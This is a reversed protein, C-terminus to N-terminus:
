MVMLAIIKLGPVILRARMRIERIKENPKKKAVRCRRLIDKLRRDYMEIKATKKQQDCPEM